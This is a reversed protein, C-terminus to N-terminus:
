PPRTHRRLFPRELLGPLPMRAQFGNWAPRNAAAHSSGGRAATAASAPAANRASRHNAPPPQSATPHDDIQVPNSTDVVDPHMLRMVDDHLEHGCLPCKPSGKQLWQLTCDTHYDHGCPFRVTPRREDALDDLCIPCTGDIESLKSEHARVFANAEAATLPASSPRGAYRLGAAASPSTTSRSYIARRSSSPPNFVQFMKWLLYVVFLGLGLCAITISIAHFRLSRRLWEYYGGEDLRVYNDDPSIWCNVKKDNSDPIRLKEEFERQATKDLCTGDDPYQSSRWNARNASDCPGQICVWGVLRSGAGGCGDWELSENYCTDSTWNKSSLSARYDRKESAPWLHYSILFFFLWSWCTAFFM